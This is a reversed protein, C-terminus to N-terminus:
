RRAVARGWSSSSWVPLQAELGGVVQAGTGLAGLEQVRRTTAGRALRRPVVPPSSCFSSRGSPALGVKVPAGMVLEWERPRSAVAARKRPAVAAWAAWRAEPVRMPTSPPLRHDTKDSWNKDMKKKKNTTKNQLSACLPARSVPHRRIPPVGCLPERDAPEERSLPTTWKRKARRQSPTRHSEPAPGLILTGHPRPTLLSITPRPPQLRAVRGPRSGGM